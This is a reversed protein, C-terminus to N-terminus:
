ASHGLAGRPGHKAPFHNAHLATSLWGDAPWMYLGVLPDACREMGAEGRGRMGWWTGAEEEHWNSQMDGGVRTLDMVPGGIEHGNPRRHEGMERSGKM